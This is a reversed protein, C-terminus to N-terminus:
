ETAAHTPSGAGSRIQEGSLMPLLPASGRQSKNKPPRVRALWLGSGADVQYRPLLKWGHEAVM